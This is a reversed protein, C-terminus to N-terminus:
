FSPPATYPLRSILYDNFGVLLGYGIKVLKQDRENPPSKDGHFLNNRICYTAEVINNWDNTDQIQLHSNNPRTLNKLPQSDLENKLETIYKSANSLFYNECGQDAKLKNILNKDNVVPSERYYVVKLLANFAFYEVAFKLFFDEQEKAVNRWTDIKIRFPM